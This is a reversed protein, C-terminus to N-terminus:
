LAGPLTKPTFGLQTAVTAGAGAVPANQRTDPLTKFEVRGPLAAYGPVPITKPPEPLYGSAENRAEGRGPLYRTTEEPLNCGALGKYARLFEQRTWKHFEATNKSCIEAWGGLQRVAATAVPDEFQVSTYGGVSAAAKAVADWALLAATDTSGLSAERIEVPKPMFRCSRMTKAIGAQVQEIDIDELAMWYAAYLAKDAEVGFTIALMAMAEAFAKKDANNM